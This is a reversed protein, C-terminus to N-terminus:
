SKKCNRTLRLVTPVFVSLTESPRARTRAVCTVPRCRPRAETCGKQGREHHPARRARRGSSSPIVHVSVGGVHSLHSIDNASAYVRHSQERKCIPTFKSTEAHTWTSRWARTSATPLRPCPSCTGPGAPTLTISLRARQPHRAAAETM